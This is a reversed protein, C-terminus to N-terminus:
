SLGLEEMRRASITGERTYGAADYLEDIMGELLDTQDTDEIRLVFDGDYHRAFLFNFLAM